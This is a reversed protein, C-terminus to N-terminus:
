EKKPENQALFEEVPMDVVDVGANRLQTKLEEIIMERNDLDAKVGKKLNALKQVMEYMTKCFLIYQGQAIAGVANNCDVIMTDILAQNSYLGEKLQM